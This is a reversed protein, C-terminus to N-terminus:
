FVSAYSRWGYGTAHSVVRHQHKALCRASGLTERVAESLPVYFPPALDCVNGNLVRNPQEYQRSIDAECAFCCTAASAASTSVASSSYRSLTYLRYRLCVGSAGGVVAVLSLGSGFLLDGLGTGSRDLAETCPPALPLPAATSLLARLPSCPAVLVTSSRSGTGVSASLRAFITKSFFRLAAAPNDLAPEAVEDPAPTCFFAFILLSGPAGDDAALAM